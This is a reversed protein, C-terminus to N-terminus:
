RRGGRNLVTALSKTLENHIRPLDNLCWSIRSVLHTRTARSEIRNSVSLHRLAEGLENTREPGMLPQVVGRDVTRLYDRLPHDRNKSLYFDDLASRYAAIRLKRGDKTAPLSAGIESLAKVSPIGNRLEDIAELLIREFGVLVSIVDAHIGKVHEVVSRSDLDQPSKTISIVGDLVKGFNRMLGRDRPLPQQHNNLKTEIRFPKEM